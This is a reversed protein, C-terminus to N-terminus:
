LNWMFDKYRMNIDRYNNKLYKKELLNEGETNNKLCKNFHSNDSPKQHQLILCKYKFKSM